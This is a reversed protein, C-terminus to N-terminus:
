NQTNFFTLFSLFLTELIHSFAYKLMLFRIAKVGAAYMSAESMCRRCKRPMIRPRGRGSSSRSGTKHYLPIDRTGFLEMCCIIVVMLTWKCWADADVSHGSQLSELSETRMSILPSAQFHTVVENQLTM